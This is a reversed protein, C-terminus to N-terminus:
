ITIEKALKARDQCIRITKSYAAITTMSAM